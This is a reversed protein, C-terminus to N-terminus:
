PPADPAGPGPSYPPVSAGPIPTLVQFLGEQAMEVSFELLMQGQSAGPQPRHLLPSPPLPSSLGSPTNRRIERPRM